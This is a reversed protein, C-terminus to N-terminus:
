IWGTIIVGNGLLVCSVTLCVWLGGIKLDLGITGGLVVKKKNQHRSGTEVGGQPAAGTM